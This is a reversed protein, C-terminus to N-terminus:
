IDDEESPSPRWLLTIKASHGPRNKVKILEAKQLRALAKQKCRRDVDLSALEANPLTVTWSDCVCVRRFICLAVILDARGATMLCVDRIFSIPAGIHQDIRRWQRRGRKKGPATEWAEGKLLEEMEEQNIGLDAADIHRTM